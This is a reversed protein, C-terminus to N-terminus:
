GLFVLFILDSLLVPSLETVRTNLFWQVSLNLKENTFGATRKQFGEM